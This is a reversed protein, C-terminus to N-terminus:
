ATVHREDLANAERAAAQAERKSEYPGRWDAISASTGFTGPRYDEVRWTGSTSNMRVIIYQKKEM